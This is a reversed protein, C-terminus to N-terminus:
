YHIAFEIAINKGRSEVSTRANPDGSALFDIQTVANSGNGMEFKDNFSLLNVLGNVSFPSALPNGLGNQTYIIERNEPPQVNSAGRQMYFAPSAGFDQFADEQESGVIRGAGDPDILGSPDLGRFSYGRADPLILWDGTPNRITGLEDDAHYYSDAAANFSDGVYVILDLMKYDARLIGQGHLLLLRIEMDNAWLASVIAPDLESAWNVITGPTAYNMYQIALPQSFPLGAFGSIGASDEIGIPPYNYFDLLAQKGLWVDDVVEKVIETGDTALPGSSDIAQTDPFVIGNNNDTIEDYFKSM